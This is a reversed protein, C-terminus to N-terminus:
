HAISRARRNEPNEAQPSGLTRGVAFSVLMVALALVVSAIVSVWVIAGNPSAARLVVLESSLLGLLSPYALACLAPIVLLLRHLSLANLGLLGDRHASM